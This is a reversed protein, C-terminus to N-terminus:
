PVAFWTRGFAAGIKFGPDAEPEAGYRFGVIRSADRMVRLDAALDNSLYNHPGIMQVFETQKEGSLEISEAYRPPNDWVIGLLEESNLM